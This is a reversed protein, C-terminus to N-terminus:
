ATRCSRVRSFFRRKRRRPSPIPSTTPTGLRPLNATPERANSSHRKEGRALVDAGATVAASTLEAAQRRSPAGVGAIVPIGASVAARVAEIVATREKGTLTAAEGTTGCVLVSRVGRSVLDRALEGTADLDVEGYDDFITVLAVGAGGPLETM